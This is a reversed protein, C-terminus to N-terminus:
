FQLHKKRLLSYQFTKMNLSVPDDTKLRSALIALMNVAKWVAGFLLSHEFRHIVTVIKLAYICSSLVKFFKRDFISRGQWPFLHKQVSDQLM